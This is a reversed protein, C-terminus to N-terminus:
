ETTPQLNVRADSGHFVGSKPCCGPMDPALAGRPLGSQSAPEVGTRVSYVAVLQIRLADAGGSYAM